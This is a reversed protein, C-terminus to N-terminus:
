PFMINFYVYRQIYKCLQVFRLYMSIFLVNSMKKDSISDSSKIQKGLAKLSSSGTVTGLVSLIEPAVGKISRLFDGVRTTGNKEKYNPM